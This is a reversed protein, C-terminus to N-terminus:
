VELSCRRGPKNLGENNDRRSSARGEDVPNIGLLPASGGGSATPNDPPSKRKDGYYM